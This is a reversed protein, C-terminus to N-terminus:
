RAACSTPSRRSSSRAADPPGAAPRHHRQLGAGGRRVDGSLDHVSRASVSVARRTLPDDGVWIRYDDFEEARVRAVRRCSARAHAPHRRRRRLDPRASAPVAASSRRSLGPGHLRHAPPQHARLSRRRRGAGPRRRRHRPDGAGPPEAARHGEAGPGAAGPQAARGTVDIVQSIFHLPTGDDARVLSRPCTVGCSRATPTCTASPSAFARSARGRAGGDVFRSVPRSTTRTRSGGSPGAGHLEHRATASCRRVAGPQREAATGDAGVLGMGVPSHEATLQWLREAGSQENLPTRRRDHPDEPQCM